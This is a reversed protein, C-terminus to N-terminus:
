KKNIFAVYETETAPLFIWAPSWIDSGELLFSPCEDTHYEVKLLKKVAKLGKVYQPMQEPKRDEWWELKKFLHPYNEPDKIMPIGVSLGGFREAGVVRWMLEGNKQEPKVIVSMQLLTDGIEFKSFPVGAIVRYRIKLFDEISEDETALGAKILILTTDPNLNKEKLLDIGTEKETYGEGDYDDHYIIVEKWQEETLESGKGVIIWNGEPLPHYYNPDFDETRPMEIMLHPATIWQEVKFGIAEVPFAVGIAKHTLEYIM